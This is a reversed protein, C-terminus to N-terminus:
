SSAGVLGKWTTGDCFVFASENETPTVITGGGDDKVTLVEAADATNIIVFILGTSLAEAPLNVQRGAGGPDLFQLPGDAITLTKTAALTETNPNELFLERIGIRDFTVRGRHRDQVM